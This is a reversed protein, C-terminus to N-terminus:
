LGSAVPVVTGRFGTTLIDYYKSHYRAAPAVIWINYPDAMPPAMYTGPVLNIPNRTVTFCITNTDFVMPTTKVTYVGTMVLPAGSM